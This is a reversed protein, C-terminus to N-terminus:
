SGPGHAERFFGACFGRGFILAGPGKKGEADRRFGRKKGMNASIM